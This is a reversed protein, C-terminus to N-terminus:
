YTSAYTYIKKSLLDKRSLSMYAVRVDGRL